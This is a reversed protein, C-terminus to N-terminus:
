SPHKPLQFGCLWCFDVVKLRRMLYRCHYEFNQLTIEDMEYLLVEEGNPFVGYIEAHQDNEKRPIVRRFTVLQDLNVLEGRCTEVWM